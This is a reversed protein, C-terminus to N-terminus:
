LLLRGAEFISGGQIFEKKTVEYDDDGCEKRTVGSIYM